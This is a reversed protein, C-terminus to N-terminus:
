HLQLMWWCVRRCVCGGAHGGACAHEGKQSRLKQRRAREPHGGAGAAAPAHRVYGVLEGPRALHADWYDAINGRGEVKVVSALALAKVLFHPTAHLRDRLVM